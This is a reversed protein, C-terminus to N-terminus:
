IWGSFALILSIVIVALGKSSLQCRMSTQVRAPRTEELRLLCVRPLPLEIRQWFCLRELEIEEGERLYDQESEGGALWKLEM